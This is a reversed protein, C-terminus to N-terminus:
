NVVFWAVPVAVPAAKNLYITFRSNAPDPVASQVYRTGAAQITALVMSASSLQVGTIVVSRSGKPVTAVGGRTFAAVGNVQLATGTGSQALVGVGGASSGAVGFGTGDNEGYVGSAGATSTQGFVGNQGSGHAYVGTAGVAYVGYSGGEAYVGTNAGTAQLARGMDSDLELALSGYTRLVTTVGRM